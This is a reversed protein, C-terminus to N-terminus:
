ANVAEFHTRKIQGDAPDVFEYATDGLIPNDDENQEEDWLFFEIIDLIKMGRQESLEQIEIKTKRTKVVVYRCPVDDGEDEVPEGVDDFKVYRTYGPDIEKYSDWDGIAEAIPLWNIEPL